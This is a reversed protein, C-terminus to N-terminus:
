LPSSRSKKTICLPKRNKVKKQINTDFMNFTIAAMFLMASDGFQLKEGPAVHLYAFFCCCCFVVVVVLSLVPKGERIWEVTVKMLIRVLGSISPQSKKILPM